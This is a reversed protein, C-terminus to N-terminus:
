SLVTQQSFLAKMAGRERESSSEHWANTEDICLSHKM